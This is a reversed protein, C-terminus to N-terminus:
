RSLDSTAAAANLLGYGYAQDPRPSPSLPTATTELRTLVQTPTPAAGLVRSAIVLAAAAAVHPAAMSTGYWGNPLGFQRTNSPNRLTMQFLGPLRRGPHCNPGGAVPSDDGGGPAVLDLGPATNSYTAVCRDRTTAGVAVVNPDAAPYALQNATDNGAAAVVMVGHQHAYKIANIVDPIGRLAVSLDFELSLNIIRAGHTAAYRIGRAITVSDGSGSADLVRVPMITAGYALGTLGLHNNTSEGVVGAVFTGHGNRDVAEPV